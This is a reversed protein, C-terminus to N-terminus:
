ADKKYSRKRGIAMKVRKAALLYASKVEGGIRVKVRSCKGIEQRDEDRKAACCQEIRRWWVWLSSWNDSM